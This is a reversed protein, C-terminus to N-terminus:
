LLLCIRNIRSSLMKKGYKRIGGLTYATIPTYGSDSHCCWVIIEQKRFCCFGFDSKVPFTRMRCRWQQINHLIFQIHTHPHTQTNNNHTASDHSKRGAAISTCGFIVFLIGEWVFRAYFWRIHMKSNGESTFFFLYFYLTRSGHFGALAETHLPCLRFKSMSMRYLALNYIINHTSM